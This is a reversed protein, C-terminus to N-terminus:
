LHASADRGIMSAFACRDTHLDTFNTEFKFCSVGSQQYSADGGQQQGIRYSAFPRADSPDIGGSTANLMSRSGVGRCWKNVQASLDARIFECHASRPMSTAAVTTKDGNRM